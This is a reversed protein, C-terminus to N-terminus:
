RNPKNATVWLFTEDGITHYDMADIAFGIKELDALLENPRKHSYYLHTDIFNKYGSFTESGTYEKTAYTFLMKGGPKLWQLIKRFVEPHEESPLHFLSYTATIADFQGSSFEVDRIDGHITNMEPAYKAALALMRESFDVGTVQWGKNIFYCAVPEGAGCGLDLLQGKEHGVVRYFRDLIKSIDFSGRNSDYTEAFQNYIDNLSTTM